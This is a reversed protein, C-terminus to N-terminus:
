NSSRILSPARQSCPPKNYGWYEPIWKWRLWRITKPPSNSCEAGTTQQKMSRTPGLSTKNPDRAPEKSQRPLLTLCALCRAINSLRRSEWFRPGGGGRVARGRVRGMQLGKTISEVHEKARMRLAQISTTRPDHGPPSPPATPVHGGNGISTMGATLSGPVANGVAAVNPPSPLRRPSTLYSPYGSHPAALFGPLASLLGPPTLWPDGPLGLAPGTMSRMNTAHHYENLGLRAAEMKEQRRWKARRNQFWVQVRVEPLNVKVALEERSYVDPYHSKEFARELEHLQYTTFTTRNRRHKKKGGNGNLDDGCGTGLEEDSGGGTSNCSNEGAANWFAAVGNGRGWAAKIGGNRKLLFVKGTNATQEKTTVTNEQTDRANDEMEQHSRKNNALGLIADISHRPTSSAPKPLVIDQSNQSATDVLQQSDM